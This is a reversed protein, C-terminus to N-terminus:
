ATFRDVLCPDAHRRENIPDQLLEYRVKRADLGDVGLLELLEAHAGAKERVKEIVRVGVDVRTM